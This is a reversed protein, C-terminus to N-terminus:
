SMFVKVDAPEPKEGFIKKMKPIVVAAYEPKMIFKELNKALSGWIDPDFKASISFKKHHIM